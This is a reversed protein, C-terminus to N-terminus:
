THNKEEECRGRCVWGVRSRGRGPVAMAPWGGSRGGPCAKPVVRGTATGQFSWGPPLSHTPLPLHVAEGGLGWWGAWPLGPTLLARGQKQVFYRAACVRGVRPCMEGLAKARLL